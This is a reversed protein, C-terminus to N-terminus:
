ATVGGEVDLALARSLLHDALYLKVAHVLALLEVLRRQNGGHLVRLRLDIVGSEVVDRADGEVILSQVDLVWLHGM